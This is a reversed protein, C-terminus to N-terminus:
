AVAEKTAWVHRVIEWFLGDRKVRLGAPVPIKPALAMAEDASAPLAPIGRDRFWWQARKRAFGSHWPCVFESVPGVPTEYTVRFTPQADVADRKRHIAYAVRFVPLPEQSYDGALIPADDDAQEDLKPPPPAPPTWGCCPCAGVATPYTEDCVECVLTTVLAEDTKAKRKGGGGESAFGASHLADIPGHRRVNSGYDLILCDVKGPSLRLGRGVMQCYLGPSKTPRMLAVADINPADFGTTLVDRNLMFRLRGRKFASLIESRERQPTEGFVEGVAHGQARLRAAIEQAHRVGSGFVLISRRDATKAVLDDVCPGISDMARAELEGADFDGNVTAVGATDIQVRETKTRLPSLYGGAILDGVEAEYSVGDFIQGAGAIAGHGTRFPTATLGVVLPPEACIERLDKLFRRYMSGSDRPIMHAEDILVLRFAGLEHARRYVSQIGAVIVQDSCDRSRLAASYVGTTFKGFGVTMLKERAQTLLEAQHALVLARKGARLIADACLQAIVWTKGAGTPLVILPSGKGERIWRYTDRVAEAQYPRLTYANM